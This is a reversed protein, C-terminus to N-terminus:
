LDYFGLCRLALDKYDKSIRLIREGHGQDGQGAGNRGIECSARPSPGHM